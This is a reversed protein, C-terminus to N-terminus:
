IKENKVPPNGLRSRGMGWESVSVCLCFDHRCGPLHPGVDGKGRDTPTSVVVRRSRSVNM